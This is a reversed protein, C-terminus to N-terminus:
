ISQKRNDPLHKKPAIELKKQIRQRDRYNLPYLYAHYAVMLKIAKKGILPFDKDKMMESLEDVKINKKYWILIWHKILFSSPTGVDNCVKQVIKKNLIGCVTFFNLNWFITSAIKEREETSLDRLGEEREEIYNNLKHSVYGVLEKQGEESKIVDFFSSLIRLYLSMGDYFIEELKTKELSGARNKIIGGMVEITKVARRLETELPFDTSTDRNTENEERSKELEDEIKNIKKRTQETTSHSSPLAADVIIEEQEDFFKVEDKTLMAPEYQNFLSKAIKEVGELIKINQSHHSIFVAIYANEDVHLNKTIKDIEEVIKDEELHGALYKAVFFYYLYPYRFSYNRLSDASVFIKLKKLLIEQKIPLTFKTSYFEMFQAFEDPSLEYKKEKYIYFAFETLFNIYTDIQDPKVGQKMLYFYILAQYCHGQNTIEQNLSKGFTEYTKIASLIFFPYAPMIGNGITKGLVDNILEIKRDIDEYIDIDDKDTLRVWKEILEYRLSPKLEAIKFYFFSSLLMEDKINLGFIDDISIVCYPYTTLKKIHKEKYKAYHFDDLIPVIRKYDIKEEEINKYQKSLSRSIIDELKGLFLNEKESIYVPVFNKNRFIKFFMKCQTTKGSQSDGAIVIKQYDSINESIEKSNIIREEYEEFDGCEILDPYVFIDKLFVREKKSHAKSLMETDQLFENFEETLELQKIYTEKEIIKKLGNYVDQWAKDTNESTTIPKGDTPVALLKSLKKDDLWGCPSVIIPIVSIGKKKKLDLAKEKEKKCEPSALFNKSIFLCIIDADELNNDIKNQYNDGPLIERDYWDEILNNDRLPTIHKKFDDIYHTKSNNDEHSYSIFLKLKNNEM